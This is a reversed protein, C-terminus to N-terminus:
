PTDFSITALLRETVAEPPEDDALDFWHVDAFRRQWTRQKKALHRTNIKIREVAQDETLEGRFHSILEAYGVAVSAQPSLGDPEALLAAVEDALGAAMMRGVRQNIRRHQDARDRRLGIFVCEYRRRGADWQQQLQSIPTGTIQFVELARVIRRQDNRHIRAAAQRDVDALERHLVDLGENAARAKLAGRIAPDASPGEFLGESLAKIYLSTGGVALAVAGTAGIIEIAADAHQVYQAVSFSESPEVLDIGHHPIKARIDPSPKATGIDMRRYIKMSDVSLIQGGLRRALHQGVSSKGCATCGVIFTVKAM